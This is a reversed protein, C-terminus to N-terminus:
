NFVTPDSAVWLGADVCQKMWYKAEQPNMAGLVEQLRSVDQSEFAKKLPKPLSKFVKAPNLGGPGVTDDEVGELAMDEDEDDEDDDEEEDNNTTTKSSKKKRKEEDMEKRKEVARKVIKGIFDNVASIFGELYQPEEIRKFFPLIVDRPDRKMSVGLEQIHTLIQSQRCVLKMRKHKGNMEDELSSLLMYSQAHEHLLIDCHKFLYDRTREMDDIDSYTELIKEHKIAFDNYNMVSMRERKITAAPEIGKNNAPLPAPQPAAVTTTTSPAAPPKVASSSPAPPPVASKEAESSSIKAKSVSTSLVEQDIEQDPIDEDKLPKSRIENVITKEDKVKCINDINWQRKEHIEAIRLNRQHIHQELEDLEIQLAETDEFAADEADDQNADKNTLSSARNLRSKIVNIRAQDIKNKQEYEEVEKDEREERELRTRHKLRFWSDKDINPHLDSEDDSLEINDWKSYDFAKKAAM